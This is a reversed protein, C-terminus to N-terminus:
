TALGLKLKADQTRHLELYSNGQQGTFANGEKATTSTVTTELYFRLTSLAGNRRLTELLVCTQWSLLYLLPQWPQPAPTVLIVGWLTSVADKHEFLGIAICQDCLVEGWTYQVLGTLIMGMQSNGSHSLLNHVQSTDMLIHSRDRAESLSNFSRANNYAVTYTSPTARFLFFFVIDM